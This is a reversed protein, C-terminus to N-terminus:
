VAKKKVVCNWIRSEDAGRISGTLLLNIEEKTLSSFLVVENVLKCHRANGLNACYTNITSTNRTYTLM